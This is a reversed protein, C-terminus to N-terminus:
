KSKSTDAEAKGDSKTDDAVPEKEELGYEKVKSKVLKYNKRLVTLDRQPDVKQVIKIDEKYAKFAKRWDQTERYFDALEEICMATEVSEDGNKKKCEDIAQTYLKEIEAATGAKRATRASALTNVWNTAAKSDGGGFSPAKVEGCGTIFFSAVLTVLATKSKSKM